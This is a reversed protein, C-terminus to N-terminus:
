RATCRCPAACSPSCAGAGDHLRAVREAFDRAGALSQLHLQREALLGDRAHALALARLQQVVRKRILSEAHLEAAHAPNTRRGRQRGLPACLGRRRVSRANRASISPSSLVITTLPSGRGSSTPIRPLARTTTPRRDNILKAKSGSRASRSFKALAGAVAGRGREQCRPGRDHGGTWWSPRVHARVSRVWGLRQAVINRGLSRGARAVSRASSRAPLCRRLRAASRPDAAALFRSLHTSRSSRCRAAPVNSTM